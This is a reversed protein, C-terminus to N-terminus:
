FLEYGKRPRKAETAEILSCEKFGTQTPGTPHLRGPHLHSIPLSSWGWFLLRRPARVHGSVELRTPFDSLKQPHATREKLSALCLMWIREMRQRNESISLRSKQGALSILGLVFTWGEWVAPVTKQTDRSRKECEGDCSSSIKLAM